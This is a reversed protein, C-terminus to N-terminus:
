TQPSRLKAADVLIAQYIQALRVPQRNIGDIAVGDLDKLIERLSRQEPLSVWLEDGAVQYPYGWTQVRAIAEARDSTQLRVTHDVPLRQRLQALTGQALLRGQHLIGIRDCVAEAEDLLHTTLLIGIGSAKLQALVQWLQQRAEIDLGTSPEDVVLITPQHVLAVALNLRRQWGGSLQQVLTKAQTELGVQALVQGLRDRRSGPPLRYLQAFFHLNEWVTLHPYLRNQQPAIGLLAPGYQALPREKYHLTGQLPRLGGALLNILTTKGAGNPGLLGYIEGPALHLSINELAFRSGPSYRHRLQDICLM